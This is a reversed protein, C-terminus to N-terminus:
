NCYSPYTNCTTALLAGINGAGYDKGGATYSSNPFEKNQGFYSAGQQKLAKDIYGWSTVGIVATQDDSGASSGTGYSPTTGFNVLWPGGSSGGTQASGIIINRFDGSTYYLGVSDTRIMKYGNDIAEPYGLQAVQGFRYGGNIFTATPFSYNNWAWPYTGLVTGAYVGNKPAVILTAIDNNCQVGSQQCTDTGNYYSSTIGANSATYCGYVGNSSDQKAPCWQFNKYWGPATSVPQGSAAKKGYDFVCHGATILVGKRLLSATCVYWGTGTSKQFYLKGTPRFPYSTVPVNAASTSTSGLVGVEVRKTTFPHTKTGYARGENSQVAGKEETFVGPKGIFNARGAKEPADKLVGPAALPMPSQFPGKPPVPSEAGRPTGGTNTIISSEALATGALGSMLLAAHALFISRLNKTMHFGEWSVIPTKDRHPWPSLYKIHIRVLSFASM